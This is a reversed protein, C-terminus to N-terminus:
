AELAIGAWQSVRATLTEQLETFFPHDHVVHRGFGAVEDDELQDRAIAAVTARIHEQTEAPFVDVVERVAFNRPTRLVDFGQVFADRRDPRVLAIFRKAAEFFMLFHADYWHPKSVERLVSVAKLHLGRYDADKLRERLHPSLM